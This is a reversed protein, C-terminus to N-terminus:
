HSKETLNQSASLIQRLEEVRKEIDLTIAYVSVTAGSIGDISKGVELSRSGDFGSFQKLWGKATIEQGHSAQYNFVKALKVQPISDILLFYDFYEHELGENKNPSSSCGGTRCSMVRGIYVYLIPYAGSNNTIKFYKGKKEPSIHAESINIEEFVVEKGECFKNLETILEKPRLNLIDQSNGNFSSLILIGLFLFKYM